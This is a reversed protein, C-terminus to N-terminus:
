DDSSGKAAHKTTKSDREAVRGAIWADIDERLYGKSQKGLAIPEPFQGARRLRWLQMTSLGVLQSVARPRIIRSSM